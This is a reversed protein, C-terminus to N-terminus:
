SPKAGSKRDLYEITRNIMNLMGKRNPYFDEHKIWFEIIESLGILGGILRQKEIVDKIKKM